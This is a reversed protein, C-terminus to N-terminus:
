HVTYEIVVAMETSSIPVPSQTAGMKQYVM